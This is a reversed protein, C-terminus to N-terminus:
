WIYRIRAPNPVQFHWWGGLSLRAPTIAVLPKGVFLKADVEGWQSWQRSDESVPSNDGLVYYQGAGLRVPQTNRRNERAGLLDTYYVDRSIRLGGVTVELGQVGIALPCSTPLQQSGPRMYPWAVLTQGDLALLFQQDVSSVEVLRNGGLVAIKGTTGPLLRDNRFVRYQPQDGDFTLWVEFRDRGDSTRVRFTGRGSVYGLRFSLMLDSVPHVDEERRPQSPNYASLDTVPLERRHHYVLWDIPADKAGAAHTFGTGAASWRSDSREARWRRPLPPGRRPQFDADHVLVAMARQQALNKRLLLGDAYVDGHRIEISEGPLGVVRKVLIQDAQSSRRFAVVEWRRPPRVSFATRDILVYDGGIDPLSELDNAAYGCNPCVARPAAPSRDTGCSFPCGCDGCVVDRHVGLLTEAMSSGAVQYPIVLGDILWTQMLGAAVFLLV